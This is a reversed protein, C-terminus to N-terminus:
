TAVRSPRNGPAACNSVADEATRDAKAKPLGSESTTAVQHSVKKRWSQLCVYSGGCLPCREGKVPDPCQKRARKPALRGVPREVPVGVAPAEPASRKTDNM